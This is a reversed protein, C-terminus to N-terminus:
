EEFKVGYDNLVKGIKALLRNLIIADRLAYDGKIQVDGRAKARAFTSSRGSLLEKCVKLFIDVRDFIIVTRADDYEDSIQLRGGVVQLAKMFNNKGKIVFVGKRMEGEAAEEPSVVLGAVKDQVRMIFQFLDEIDQYQQIETKPM